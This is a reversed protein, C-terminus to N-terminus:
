ISTRMMVGLSNKRWQEKRRGKRHSCQLWAPYRQVNWGVRFWQCQMHFRCFKCILLVALCLVYVPQKCCCLCDLNNNSALGSTVVEYESWMSVGCKRLEFHWTRHSQALFHEFHTVFILLIFFFPCLRAQSKCKKFKISILDSWTFLYLKFHDFSLYNRPFIMAYKRNLIVEDPIDVPSTAWLESLKQLPKSSGLM